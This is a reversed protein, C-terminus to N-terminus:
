VAEEHHEVIAVDHGQGVIVARQLCQGPTLSSRAGSADARVVETAVSTLMVVVFALASSPSSMAFGLVILPISVV